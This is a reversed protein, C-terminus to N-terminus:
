LRHGVLDEQYADWARRIRKIGEVLQAPPVAFSLRVYQDFDDSVSFTPGPLLRVRERHAWQVFTTASGHPLRVWLSAGGQPVLPHWGPLYCELTDLALQRANPLTQWREDRALEIKPLLRAALLQAVLSTGLDQGGKLSTLAEILTPKARVWGLRLGGWFSKSVSGVTIVDDSWAALPHPRRDGDIITDCLTIDDVVPIRYRDTVSAIAPLRLRDMVTGLPNHVTSQLVILAPRHREIQRALQHPDLGRGDMQVPILRAGLSGLSEIAGRFSPEEILVPSDRAVHGEAVLRLAPQAGSTVLIQSEDTPLGLNRFYVAIASRLEPLGSPLYGHSAVLERLRPGDLLSVEDAVMSLGPLAASRLDIQDPPEVGSGMFSRLRDDRRNLGSLIPLSQVYTGDGRRSILQGEERLMDLSKTITTRSVQLVQGIARESPLRAGAPIGGTEIHHRIADALRIHLASTGNSWGELTRALRTPTLTALIGANARAADDSM